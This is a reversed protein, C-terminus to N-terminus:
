QGIVVLSFCTISMTVPHRAGSGCYGVLQALGTLATLVLNTAVVLSYPVQLAMNVLGTAILTTVVLTSLMFIGPLGLIAWRYEWIVYCRYLYLSDIIFNNMAGLVFQATELRVPLPDLAQTRLSAKFFRASEVAQAIAVAMQATAVTAIVCSWAM